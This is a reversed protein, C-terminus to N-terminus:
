EVNERWLDVPLGQSHWTLNRNFRPARHSTISEGILMGYLRNPSFNLLSARKGDM